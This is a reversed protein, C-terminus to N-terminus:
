GVALLNNVFAFPFSSAHLPIAGVIITGRIRQFGSRSIHSFEPFIKAVANTTIKQGVPADVVSLPPVTDHVTHTDERPGIVAHVIPHPFVSFAVSLAQELFRVAKDVVALPDVVRHVSSANCNIRITLFVLSRKTSSAAFATSCDDKGITSDVLTSETVIGDVPLSCHFHRSRHNYWSLFRLVFNHFLFRLLPFCCFRFLLIEHNGNGELTIHSSDKCLCPEHLIWHIYVLLVYLQTKTFRNCYKKTQLYNWWWVTMPWPLTVLRAIGAM